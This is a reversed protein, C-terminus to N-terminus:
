ILDEDPIFKLVEKKISFSKTEDSYGMRTEKKYLIKKIRLNPLSVRQELHNDIFEDDDTYFFYEHDGPRNKIIYIALALHKCDDFHLYNRIQNFYQLYLPDSLVTQYDEARPRVIWHNILQKFNYRMQSIFASLIKMLNGYNIHTIGRREYTEFIFTEFSINKNDPDSLFKTKTEQLELEKNIRFARLMKKEFGIRIKRIKRYYEKEVSLLLFITRKNTISDIFPEAVPHLRDFSNCYGLIINTDLFYFRPL